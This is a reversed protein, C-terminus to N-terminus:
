QSEDASPKARGVRHDIFEGVKGELIIKVGLLIALIILASLLVDSLFHAGFAIRNLGLGISLCLILAGIIIRYRPHGAPLVALAAFIAMAGAAEGSTFSCNKQCASSIQWAATFTDDGGFQLVDRPRARGFLPKLLTTVVLGVGLGYTMIPLLLDRTRVGFRAQLSPSCFLIVSFGLIAGGLWDTLKRLHQLLSNQALPFRGGDFFLRSFGIDLDPRIAFLASIVGGIIIVAILSREYTISPLQWRVDGV